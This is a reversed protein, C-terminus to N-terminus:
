TIGLMCHKLYGSMKLLTKLQNLSPAISFLSSPTPFYVGYRGLVAVYYYESDHLACYQIIEERAPLKSTTSEQNYGGQMLYGGQEIVTPTTPWVPCQTIDKIIHSGTTVIDSSKLKSMTSQHDEDPTCDKLQKWKSHEYPSMHTSVGRKIWQIYGDVSLGGTGDFMFSTAGICYCVLQMIFSEFYKILSPGFINVDLPVCQPMRVESEPMNNFRMVLSQNQCFPVAGCNGASQPDPGLDTSMVPIANDGPIIRPVVKLMPLPTTDIIPKPDPALDDSTVLDVEPVVVPVTTTADPEKETCAARSTAIVQAEKVDDNV